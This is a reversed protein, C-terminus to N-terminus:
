SKPISSDKTRLSVRLILNLAAVSRIGDSVNGLISVAEFWYLFYKQLFVHLNDNDSLVTRSAELHYMWYSCAYQLEPAIFLQIVNPDITDGLTAPDELNCLDPKLLSSMVELCRKFLENHAEQGDIRLQEDTCREPDLLFDRFSLHIVRIPSDQNGPVDLVSHLTLIRTEVTRLQIDLLRALVTSPLAKALVVIAGVVQRFESSFRVRDKKNAGKGSEISRRLIATYISDLSDSPSKGVYAHDLITSLRESPDWADDSIFRCATLAYIFM